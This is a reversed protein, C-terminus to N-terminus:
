QFAIMAGHLLNAVGNAVLIQGEEPLQELPMGADRGACVTASESQGFACGSLKGSIPSNKRRCLTRRNFGTKSCVGVFIHQRIVKDSSGALHSALAGSL